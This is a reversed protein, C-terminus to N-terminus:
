FTVKNRRQIRYTHQTPDRLRKHARSIVSVSVCEDEDSDEEEEDDDWIVSVGSVGMVIRMIRMMM